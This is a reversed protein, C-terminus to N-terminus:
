YYVKKQMKDINKKFIQKCEVIFYTNESYYVFVLRYNQASKLSCKATFLRFKRVLYVNYM